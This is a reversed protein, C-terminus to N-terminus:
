STVKHYCSTSIRGAVRLEQYPGGIVCHNHDVKRGVELFRCGHCLKAKRWNKMYKSRDFAIDKVLDKRVTVVDDETTHLNMVPKNVQSHRTIGPAQADRYKMISLNKWKLWDNELM